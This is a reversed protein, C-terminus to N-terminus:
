KRFRFAVVIVVIVVAAGGVILLLDVPVGAEDVSTIGLIPDYELTENGFNEFALYISEGAESGTGEGYSARVQITNQAALATPEYQMYGNSFNFHTGTHHFGEPPDSGQSQEHESETITFQMVLLSEEYTWNWGDIIVDFKFEGPNQVELHVRIQIYVDFSDMHPLNGYNGGSGGPRPDHTSTATFNFHVAIVTEGDTETEFGSFDWGTSPLAFAPGIMHDDGLVFVGDANTDNAEFLKVFMVHYDVTTDNPDWWQFHPVQSTSTIKIGIDDTTMTVIGAAEHYELGTNQAAALPVSLGLLFVAVIAMVYNKDTTM